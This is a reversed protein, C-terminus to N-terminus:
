YKVSFDRFENTCPEETDLVEDVRAVPPGIHCWNLMQDVNEDKGEFCAEVRGDTMNRVWGTLSLGKATKQTAARFFVGQVRGKIYVHVRKM